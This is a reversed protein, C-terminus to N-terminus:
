WYQIWVEVMYVLVWLVSLFSITYVVYRLGTCVISCTGHCLRERCGCVHHESTHITLLCAIFINWSLATNGRFSGFITPKKPSCLSMGQRLTSPTRWYINTCVNSSRKTWCKHVYNWWFKEFHTCKQRM